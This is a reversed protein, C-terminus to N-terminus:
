ENENEDIYEINDLIDRILYEAQDLKMGYYMMNDITGELNVACRYTLGYELGLRHTLNEVENM